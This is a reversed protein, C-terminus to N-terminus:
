ATYHAELLASCAAMRFAGGPGGSNSIGHMPAELQASRAAMRLFSQQLAPQSPKSFIRGPITQGFAHQASIATKLVM